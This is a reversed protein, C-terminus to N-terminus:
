RHSGGLERLFAEDAVVPLVRTQLARRPCSPHGRLAYGGEVVLAAKLEPTAKIVKNSLGITVTNVKEGPNKVSDATFGDPLQVVAYAHEKISIVKGIQPGEKTVREAKKYAWGKGMSFPKQPDAGDPAIVEDGVALEKAPTYLEAGEPASFYTNGDSTKSIIPKFDTEPLAYKAMTAEYDPDDKPNPLKAEPASPVDAEPAAEPNLTAKSEIVEIQNAEVHVLRGKEPGTSMRVIARTGEGDEVTGTVESKHKSSYWKVSKGMDIFRGNKDRLQLAVLARRKAKSINWAM